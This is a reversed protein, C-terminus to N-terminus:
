SRHNLSVMCLLGYVMFWFGYAMRWLRECSQENNRLHLQGCRAAYGLGQAFRGGFGWVVRGGEVCARLGVEAGTEADAIKVVGFCAGMMIRKGDASFALYDVPAWGSAPCNNNTRLYDGYGLADKDSFDKEGACRCIGKGNHEGV